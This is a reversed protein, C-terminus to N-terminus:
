TESVLSISPTELSLPQASAGVSAAHDAYEQFASYKSFMKQHDAGIYLFSDCGMDRKRRSFYIVTKSKDEQLYRLARFLMEESVLDYLQNLILIRPEALIAAALKLLMTETISFPWGTVSLKTDLGKEFRAIVPELGVVKLVELMKSPAVNDSSLELYDRITMEIITPRDLLVIERHLATTSTELIDVGGLAIYGGSPEDHRKLLNTMLRQVGHSSAMALVSAGSEIRFDFRAYANRAGGRVDVFALSSDPWDIVKDGKPDELEVDLFLSLEEVAACLDYFYVMYAGLQSIGFFVASLVLEAAVLQGLSLQGQIVLWGGLGLLVASAGAYIVFFSIMQAFYLRFQRRHQDIYDGTVEDTQNLAHAIHRDTKFFGNSSALGELWAASLHKKHSLELSAKIASKGWILWVAWLMLIIVTNFALFLPHYFSVLIFGVGAQLLLTFGGVLLAPMMKQVIIIDFYRNFLPGRGHDDFFPNRAYVARLAIETVFRAYFRRGFIEMLHVRLANLLGSTMLLIFLTVSLVILPAAMATNAVTNILMQVSIPTALSLLSIGVGYIMALVYFDKEPGLIEFFLSVIKSVKFDTSSESNM